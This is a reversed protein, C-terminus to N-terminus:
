EYVDENKYSKTAPVIIHDSIITAVIGIIVVEAFIM